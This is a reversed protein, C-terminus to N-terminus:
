EYDHVTLLGNSGNVTVKLGSGLACANAVSVLAPIGMERAIISSHSLM